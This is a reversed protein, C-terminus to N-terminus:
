KVAFFQSFKEKLPRLTPLRYLEFSVIAPRNVLDVPLPTDPIIRMTIKHSNGGADAGIMGSEVEAIHGPYRTKSGFVRITAPTDTSMKAGYGADIEAMAWPKASVPVLSIVPTNQSVYQGDVGTKKVIYCDCPSFITAGRAGSASTLYGIPQNRRVTVSGDDVQPHYIGEAQTRVDFIPGTISADSSKVFFLSSYLNGAIFFVILFGILAVALLGPIQRAFGPEYSPSEEQKRPNAFNNRSAINLIDNSAVLDGAMYARLIHNLFSIHDQSLNTFNCGLIKKEADYHRVEGSLNLDMSFGNLPIGLQLKVPQGKVFEGPIGQISVGGASLNKVACRKGDVAIRAPVHLRAHQRQVESEHVIRLNSAPKM